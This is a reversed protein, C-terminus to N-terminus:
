IHHGQSQLAGGALRLSKLTGPVHRSPWPDEQPPSASTAGPQAEKEARWTAQAHSIFSEQGPLWHWGGQEAWQCKRPRPQPSLHHHSTHPALGEQSCQPRGGRLGPLQPGTLDPPHGAARVQSGAWRMEAAKSRLAWRLAGNRSRQEKPCSAGCRPMGPCQPAGQGPDGVGWSARAPPHLRGPQFIEPLPLAADM